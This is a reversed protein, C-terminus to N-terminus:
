FVEGGIHMGGSRAHSRRNRGDSGGGGGGQRGRGNYGGGGGGGRGRGGGGGGGSSPRRGSGGGGGGGGGGFKLPVMPLPYIDPTIGFQKRAQALLQPNHLANAPVDKLEPCWHKIYAAEPDYTAGQKPISFYRDERPDSGVGAVYSCPSSKDAEERARV